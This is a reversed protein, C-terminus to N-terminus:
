KAGNPTRHEKKQEKLKKRRTKNSKPPRQGKKSKGGGVAGLGGKVGNEKCKGRRRLSTCL